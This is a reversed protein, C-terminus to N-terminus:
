LLEPALKKITNIRTIVEDPTFKDYLGSLDPKPYGKKVFTMTPQNLPVVDDLQELYLVTQDRLMQITHVAAPHRRIWQGQRAHEPEARYMGTMGWYTFGAGGNLPTMYNFVQYQEADPEDTTYYVHDLMEGALVKTRFHYRHDHPNVVEPLKTVDGNLFYVKRTLLRNRTLCIYDLGKAHFNKFSHAIIDEISDHKM